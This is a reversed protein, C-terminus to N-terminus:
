LSISVSTYMKIFDERLRYCVACHWIKVAIKKGFCGYCVGEHWASIHSVTLAFDYRLYVKTCHRISYQIINLQSIHVKNGSAPIKPLSLYNCGVTFQLIYNSIGTQSVQKQCCLGWKYLSGPTDHYIHQDDLCDCGMRSIDQTCKSNQRNATKWCFVTLHELLM